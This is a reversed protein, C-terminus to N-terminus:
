STAARVKLLIMGNTLAGTLKLLPKRKMPYPPYIGIVKRPFEKFRM